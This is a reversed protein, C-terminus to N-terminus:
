LQTGEQGGPGWWVDETGAEEPRQREQGKLPVGEERMEGNVWSM